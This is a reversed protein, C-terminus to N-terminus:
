DLIVRYQIFGTETESPQEYMIYPIENEYKRAEPSTIM